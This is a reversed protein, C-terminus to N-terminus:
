PSSPEDRMIGVVAMELVLAGDNRPVTGLGKLALDAQAFSELARQLQSWTFRRAQDSLIRGRPGGKKLATAASDKGRLVV